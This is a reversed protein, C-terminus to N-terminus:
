SAVFENYQIGNAVLEATQGLNEASESFYALVSARSWGGQTSLANVWFNFGEGEAPRHMVHEYLLGVFQSDSPNAGYLSRFEDSNIFEQAAATGSLGNDIRYIWYGVGGLDPTRDFAAKYLRYATGANEGAGTDLAIIGDSFELREVENVNDIGDRNAVLDTITWGEVRPQTDTRYDWLEAQAIQYNAVQGRFIATDIGNGGYFFDGYSDDGYGKFTDNGALGQVFDRVALSASGEFWDNGNLHQLDYDYDYRTVDYPESWQETQLTVGDIFFRRTYIVGTVDSADIADAPINFSGTVTVDANYKPIYLYATSTTSTNKVLIDTPGLPDDSPSVNWLSNYGFAKMTYMTRELATQRPCYYVLSSLYM